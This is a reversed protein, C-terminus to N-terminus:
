AKKECKGNVIKGGSQECAATLKKVVANFEKTLKAVDSQLKKTQKKKTRNASREISANSVCQNDQLTYKNKCEMIVCINNRADYRTKAYHRSAPKCSEGDVSVCSLGDASTKRPLGAVDDNCRKILCKWINNKRKKKDKSVYTVDIDIDDSDEPYSNCKKEWQSIADAVTENQQEEDTFTIQSGLIGNLSDNVKIMIESAKKEMSRDALPEDKKAFPDRGPLKEVDVKERECSLKNESVVFNNVCEKVVCTLKTEKKGSLKDVGISKIADTAKLGECAAIWNNVEDRDYKKTNYWMTAGVYMNKIQHETSSLPKTETTPLTVTDAGRATVNAYLEDKSVECKKHKADVKYGYSCEEIGCFYTTETSTTNTYTHAITINQNKDTYKNCKSEWKELAKKVKKNSANEKSVIFTEGIVLNKTHKEINEVTSKVSPTLDADDFSPGLETEAVYNRTSATPLEEQICDTKDNNTKYTHANRTKCQKILCTWGNGSEQVFAKAVKADTFSECSKKWRSIAGDLSSCGSVKNYSIKKGIVINKTKDYLNDYEIDCETKINPKLDDADYLPKTKKTSTSAPTTSQECKSHQSNPKYGTSCEDIGCFFTTRSIGINRYLHAKTIHQKADTYNNCKKEWKDLAKIVAKERTDANLITISEGISLNDTQKDIGEVITAVSAIAFMKPDPDGYAYVLAPSMAGLMFTLLFLSKNQRM